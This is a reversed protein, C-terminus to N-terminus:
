KRPRLLEADVVQVGKPAITRRLRLTLHHTWSGADTEFVEITRSPDVELSFQGRLMLFVGLVSELVIRDDPFDRLLKRLEKKAPANGRNVPKFYRCLAHLVRVNEYDPTNGKYVGPVTVDLAYGVETGAFSVRLQSSAM